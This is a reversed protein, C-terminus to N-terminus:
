MSAHEEEKKLSLFVVSFALPYEQCLKFECM